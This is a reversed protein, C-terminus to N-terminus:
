PRAVVSVGVEADMGVFRRHLGPPQPFPPQPLTQLRQRFRRTRPHEEVRVQASAEEPVSDGSAIVAVARVPVELPAAAQVVARAVERVAPEAAVQAAPQVARRPLRRAPRLPRRPGPIASRRVSRLFHPNSRVLLRLAQRHARPCRRRVSPHRPLKLRSAKSPRRVGVRAVAKAPAVEAGVVVRAEVAGTARGRVEKPVV